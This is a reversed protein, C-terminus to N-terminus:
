GHVYPTVSRRGSGLLGEHGGYERIVLERLSRHGELLLVVVTSSWSHCQYLHRLVVEVTVENLARYNVCLRQTGDKKPAFIVPAGWPTSSPCIYEKELLEKIHEKLEALETTAMSYPTKYVPTTGTKLEIV